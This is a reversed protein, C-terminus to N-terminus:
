LRIYIKDKSVSKVCAYNMRQLWQDMIECDYGNKKKHSKRELMLVPSFLDITKEAGYLAELEHGEIDLIIADCTSLNLDDISQCHVKLGKEKSIYHGGTNSKNEVLFVEGTSSSLASQHLKINKQEFTNLIATKYNKENAEFSIVQDFVKSLALPWLGVHGGAQVVLSTNKVHPIMHIWDFMHNVYRSYYTEMGDVFYYNEIQIM